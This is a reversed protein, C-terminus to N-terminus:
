RERVARGEEGESEVGERVESESRQGRKEDILYAAAKHMATCCWERQVVSASRGTMAREGLEDAAVRAGQEKEVEGGAEAM